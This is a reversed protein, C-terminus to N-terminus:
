TSSTSDMARHCRHKWKLNLTMTDEGINKERTGRRIERFTRERESGAHGGVRTAALVGAWRGAWRGARCETLGAKGGPVVRM